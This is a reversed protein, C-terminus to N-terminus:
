EATGEENESREPKQFLEETEMKLKRALDEVQERIQDETYAPEDITAQYAVSYKFGKRGTPDQVKECRIMYQLRGPIIAHEQQLKDVAELIKLACEGLCAARSKRDTDSYGTATQERGQRAAALRAAYKQLTQYDKLRKRTKGFLM